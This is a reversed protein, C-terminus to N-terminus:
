PDVIEIRKAVRKLLASIPGLDDLDGLEFTLSQPVRGAVDKLSVRRRGESQYIELLVVREGHSAITMARAQAGIRTDRAAVLLVAADSGKRIIQQEIAARSAKLPDLLMFAGCEDRYRPYAREIAILNRVVLGRKEDQFSLSGAHGVFVSPACVNRFGAARACASIPMKWTDATSHTM